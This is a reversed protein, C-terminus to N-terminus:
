FVFFLLCNQHHHHRSFFLFHLAKKRRRSSWNQPIEKTTQIRRVQIELSFEFLVSPDLWEQRILSSKTLSWIWPMQHVLCWPVHLGFSHLWTGEKLRDLHLVRVRSFILIHQTSHHILSWGITLHQSSYQSDTCLQSNDWTQFMFVCLRKLNEVPYPDEM